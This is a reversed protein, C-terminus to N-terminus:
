TLPIVAAHTDRARAPRAVRSTAGSSPSHQGDRHMMVIHLKSQTQQFPLQLFGPQEPLEPAAPLVFFGGFPPAPLLAFPDPVGPFTLSQRVALAGSVWRMRPHRLTPFAM